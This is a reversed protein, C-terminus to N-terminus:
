PLFFPEDRISELCEELSVDTYLEVWQGTHRQFALHFHDDGAYEIRAFKAEFSSSDAEPDPVQYTACLYFYSRYWKGYIDVIYNFRLDDPPPQIHQPKLVTEILENAKASVAKKVTDPPVGVSKGRAKGSMLHRPGKMMHNREQLIHDM